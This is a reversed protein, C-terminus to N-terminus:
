VFRLILSFFIFVKVLPFRNTINWVCAREFPLFCALFSSLARTIQITASTQAHNRHDPKLDGLLPFSLLLNRLTGLGGREGVSAAFDFAALKVVAIVNDDDDAIM